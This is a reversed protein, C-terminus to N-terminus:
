VSPKFQGIAYNKRAGEPQLIYGKNQCHILLKKINSEGNGKEGYNSKAAIQLQLLLEGRGFSEGHSFVENILKMKDIEILTMPNFIANISRDNSFGEVIVPLGDLIEFAFSDFPKNREESSSVISINTDHDSKAVEIVTEAKNALETGLHGRAKEGTPNQHLVTLIHIHFEESWKMLYSIINTSEKLDNFDYLLDRIGDIVVFGLDSTATIARNIMELRQSPTYSRLGYMTLNEPISVNLLKCIRKLSLQCHYKSQETDFYLVKQKDIPLCGEFGLVTNDTIVSALAIGVAFSKRSKARGKLLSINDLTGMIANTCVQKWAMSPPPIYETPDITSKELAKIIEDTSTLDSEKSDNLNTGMPINISQQQMKM